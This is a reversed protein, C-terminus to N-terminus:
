GFAFSISRLVTGPWSPQLMPELLAVEVHKMVEECCVISGWTRRTKTWLEWVAIRRNTRSNRLVEGPIKPFPFHNHRSQNTTIFTKRISGHLHCNPSNWSDNVQKWADYIDNCPDVNGRGRYGRSHFRIETETWKNGGWVLRDPTAASGSSSM